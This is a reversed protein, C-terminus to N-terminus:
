MYWCQGMNYHCLLTVLERKTFNLSNHHNIASLPSWLYPSKLLSMPLLKSYKADLQNGSSALPSIPDMWRRITWHTLLHRSWESSECKVNNPLSGTDPQLDTMTKSLLRPNWSSSLPPTNSPLTPSARVPLNLHTFPGPTIYQLLYLFSLDNKIERCVAIWVGFSSPLPKSM